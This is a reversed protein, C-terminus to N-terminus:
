NNKKNKIPKRKITKKSEQMLLSANHKKLEEYANSLTNILRSLGEEEIKWEYGRDCGWDDYDRNWFYQEVLVHSPLDLYDWKNVEIRVARHRSLMVDTTLNGEERINEKKEAESRKFRFTRDFHDELKESEWAYSFVSKSLISHKEKTAIETVATLVEISNLTEKDTSTVEIHLTDFFKYVDTVEWNKINAAQSEM